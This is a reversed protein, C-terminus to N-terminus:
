GVDVKVENGSIRVKREPNRFTITIEGAADPDEIDTVEDPGALLRWSFHVNRNGAIATILKARVQDKQQPPWNDIHALEAPSLGLGGLFNRAQQPLPQDLANGGSLWAFLPHPNPPGLPGPNTFLQDLVKTIKTRRTRLAQLFEGMTSGVPM